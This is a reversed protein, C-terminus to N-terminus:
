VKKRRTVRFSDIMFRKQFGRVAKVATAKIPVKSADL